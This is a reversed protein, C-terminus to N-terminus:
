GFHMNGILNPYYYCISNIGYALKLAVIEQNDGKYKDNFGM